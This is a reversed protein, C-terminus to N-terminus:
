KVAQSVAKFEPTGAKGLLDFLAAEVTTVVAGADRCLEVGVRRDEENRSLAADMLLYPSLGRGALDRVTQFVCVHTEMGAVLVRKRGGFQRLVEDLGCSFQIKEVPQGALLESVQAVTRGLGKPYQETHVIPLGLAQAGLIAARTRNLCRSLAPEPMAAALREQVDVVLLATDNRELRHTSVARFSYRRRECRM